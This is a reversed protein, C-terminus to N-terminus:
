ASGSSHFTIMDSRVNSDVDWQLRVLTIETAFCELTRLIQLLMNLYTESLQEQSEM